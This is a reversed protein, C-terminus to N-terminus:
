SLHLNWQDGDTYMASCLDDSSSSTKLDVIRGGGSFHSLARKNLLNENQNADTKFIM